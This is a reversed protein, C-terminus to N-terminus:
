VYEGGQAFHITAHFDFLLLNARIEFDTAIDVSKFSVVYSEAIRTFKDVTKLAKDVFFIPNKLRLYRCVFAIIPMDVIQLMFVNM